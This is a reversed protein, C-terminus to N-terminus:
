TPCYVAIGSATVGFYASGTQKGPFFCFSYSNLMSNGSVITFKISFHSFFLILKFEFVNITFDHKGSISLHLNKTYKYTLLHFHFQFPGEEAELARHRESAGEQQHQHHDDDNNGTLCLLLPERFM